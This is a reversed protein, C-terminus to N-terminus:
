TKGSDRRMMARQSFNMPQDKPGEPLIRPSKQPTTTQLKHPNERALRDLGPNGIATKVTELETPFTTNDSHLNGKALLPTRKDISM